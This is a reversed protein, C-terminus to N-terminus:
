KQFPKGEKRGCHEILCYKDRAFIKTEVVVFYMM